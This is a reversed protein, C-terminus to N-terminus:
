IHTLCRPGAPRSKEVCSLMIPATNNFYQFMESSWDKMTWINRRLHDALVM